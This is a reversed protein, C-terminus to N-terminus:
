KRREAPSSGKLALRMASWALHMARKLAAGDTALVRVLMGASKPLQSAGITAEAQDLSITQLEGAVAAIPLNRGAVIL